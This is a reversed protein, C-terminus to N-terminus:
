KKREQEHIITALCTDNLPLLTPIAIADSRQARSELQECLYIKAHGLTQIINCNRIPLSVSQNWRSTNITKGILWTGNKVQWLGQSSQLVFDCFSLSCIWDILRLSFSRQLFNSQFVPLHLWFTCLIQKVHTVFGHSYSNKMRECSEDDPVHSQSHAM